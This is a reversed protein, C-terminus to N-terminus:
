VHAADGIRPLYIDQARAASAVHAAVTAATGLRLDRGPTTLFDRLTNRGLGTDIGVRSPSLRTMELSVRLWDRFTDADPLLPAPTAAKLATPRHNM